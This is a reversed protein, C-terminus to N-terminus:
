WWIGSDRECILAVLTLVMSVSALPVIAVSLAAIAIIFPDDIGEIRWNDMSFCHLLPKDRTPQCERIYWLRIARSGASLVAVQQLLLVNQDMPHPHPTTLYTLIPVYDRIKMSLKSMLKVTEGEIINLATITYTNSANVCSINISTAPSAVTASASPTNAKCDDLFMGM